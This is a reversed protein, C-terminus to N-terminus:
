IGAIGALNGSNHLVAVQKSEKGLMRRVYCVEILVAGKELVLM